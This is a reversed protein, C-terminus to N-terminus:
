HIPLVIVDVTDREDGSACLYHKADQIFGEKIQVHPVDSDVEVDLTITIHWRKM